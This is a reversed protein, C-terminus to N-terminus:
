HCLHPSVHSASESEADIHIKNYNVSCGQLHWLFIFSHANLDKKKQAFALATRTIIYIIHLLTIFWFFFFPLLNVLNSVYIKNLWNLYISFM